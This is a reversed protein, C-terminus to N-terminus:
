SDIYGNENLDSKGDALNYWRQLGNKMVAWTEIGGIELVLEKVKLRNVTHSRNLLFVSDEQDKIRGAIYKLIILWEPTIVPVSEIVVSDKLAAQYFNEAEDNRVIWDAAVKKEATQIEYRAGGQKLLGCSYIPLTRSAIIDIEDTWEIVEM